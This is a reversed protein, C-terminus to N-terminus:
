TSHGETHHGTLKPVDITTQQLALVCSGQIGLQGNSWDLLMLEITSSSWYQNVLVISSISSSQDPPQQGM